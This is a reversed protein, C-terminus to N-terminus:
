SSNAVHFGSFILPVKSGCLILWQTVKACIVPLQVASHLGTTVRPSSWRVNGVMSVGTCELLIELVVGASIVQLQCM